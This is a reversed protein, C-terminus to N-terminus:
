IIQYIEKLNRGYGDYDLGYGVIFKNEIEFGIYDIPYNKKFAEKKFILSAITISKPNKTTLTEILRHLTLGTDVIDEVIIIDLGEINKNLGIVEQVVESSQTGEYSKLRIFEIECEFDIQRVLDATFMFSGNLVSLFLPKKDKYDKTLKEGLRIVASKIENESIYPKFTLDLININM